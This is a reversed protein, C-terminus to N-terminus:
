RSLKELLDRYEAALARFREAEKTKDLPKGDIGEISIHPDELFAAHEEWQRIDRKLLYIFQRTYENMIAEEEVM